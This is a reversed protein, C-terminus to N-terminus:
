SRDNRYFEIEQEITEIKPAKSGNQVPAAATAEIPPPAATAAPGGTKEEVKANKRAFPNFNFAGFGNKKTAEDLLEKEAVTEKQKVTSTPM